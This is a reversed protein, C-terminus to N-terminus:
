TDGKDREKRLLEETAILNQCLCECVATTLDGVKMGIWAGCLGGLIGAIMFGIAGGGLSACAIGCMFGIALASLGIVMKRFENASAVLKNIIRDTREPEHIM